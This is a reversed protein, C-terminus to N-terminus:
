SPARKLLIIQFPYCHGLSRVEPDLALRYPAVELSARKGTHDPVVRSPPPTPHQSDHLSSAAAAAAAATASPLSYLATFDEPKPPARKDHHHHHHHHHHLHHDSEVLGLLGLNPRLDDMLKGGGGQQFNLQRSFIAPFINFQQEVASATTAAATPAVASAAASGQSGDGGGAGGGCSGKFDVE